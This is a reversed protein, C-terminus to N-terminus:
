FSCLLLANKYEWRHDQGDDFVSGESTCHGEWTGLIDESYDENIRVFRIPEETIITEEGNEISKVILSGNTESDNIDSISLEDLISTNEDTSRTITLKNGTINVDAELLNIWPSGLEPNANFSASISAKSPSFFTFVGKENTLAPQGNRDDVIWSGIIKEEIQEQTVEGSTNEQIDGGSNEANQESLQGGCACLSVALMLAFMLVILKKM